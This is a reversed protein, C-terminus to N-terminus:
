SRIWVLTSWSVLSLLLFRRLNGTRCGLLEAIYILEVEPGRTLLPLCWKFWIVWSWLTALLIRLCRLRRRCVAWLGSALRTAWLLFQWCSVVVRLRRGCWFLLFTRVNTLMLLRPLIPLLNLRLVLLLSSCIIVWWTWLSICLLLIIVCILLLLTTMTRPLMFLLLRFVWIRVLTSLGFGYM